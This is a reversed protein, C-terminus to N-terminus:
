RREREEVRGQRAAEREAGGGAGVAAGQGQGQPGPTLGWSQRVTHGQALM